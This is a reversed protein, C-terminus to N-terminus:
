ATVRRASQRGADSIEAGRMRPAHPGQGMVADPREGRIPLSGHRGGPQGGANVDIDLGIRQRVTATAASGHPVQVFGATEAFIWIGGAFGAM